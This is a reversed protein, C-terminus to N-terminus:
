NMNSSRQYRMDTAEMEHEWAYRKIKDIDFVHFAM